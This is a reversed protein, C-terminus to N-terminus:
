EPVIDRFRGQENYLRQYQRMNRYVGQVYLRTESLPINEVWEEISEGPLETKWRAVRSPGGNYGAAVYEFRGLQGILQKLYATGLQINFAPNFLDFGGTQSTVGYQKAVFRGTSPLLQMLGLANARSRAQPNFVSEQRILGAVQYPDISHRRAETKIIEWWGLPYFIDWVERTMEQPLSQAYDPWARKLANIAAANENRARYIHAIRLNVKPSDPATDRAAEAETLALTQLGILSLQASKRLREEDQPQITEVVPRNVQLNTIARDMVPDGGGPITRIGERELRGIYDEARYGYWGAGYRLLMARYLTLARAKDGARELDRAGWFAAKGRNDTVDGYSAVHELLLKGSSAFDRAEHARWAIAFQAEDAKAHRPTVRILQDYFAAAQQPQRNKEYGSAMESLLDGIRHSGPTTNRLEGLTQLLAAEQGLARQSMGRYFLVEAKERTSTARTQSLLSLANQYARARYHSIAAQLQTETTVAAPFLRILQDFTQAAQAYMDAEFLRQTRTLLNDPQTPTTSAGLATLRAAVTEAEASQPAEFYIDRLTAILERTKGLKELADARLKLAAGDKQEMALTRLDTITATYDGRKFASGAAQLAGARSFLSAPFDRALQRWIREADENGANQLAQARYHLAYDGLVSYQAIAPDALLFAANLFDRAQLRLYGRLLRALAAEQTRPFNQEIKQLELESGSLVALHLQRAPAQTMVSGVAVPGNAPVMVCFLALLSFAATFDSLFRWLTKM